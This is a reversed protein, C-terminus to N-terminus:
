NLHIRFYGGDGSCLAKCVRVSARVCVRGNRFLFAAQDGSSPLVEVRFCFSFPHLHTSIQGAQQSYNGNMQVNCVNPRVATFSKSGNIM